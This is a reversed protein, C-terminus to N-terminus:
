FKNFDFGKYKEMIKARSNVQLKKYINKVHHRVTNISIHQTKAIEKYSLGQVLNDLILKEKKSLGNKKPLNFLALPPHFYTVIKKAVGPSLPAGGSMVSLLLRRFEHKTFDKEIYGEAGLRLAQFVTEDDSFVTLMVICVDPLKSKIIPLAELGSKGPLQIDLLLIDM